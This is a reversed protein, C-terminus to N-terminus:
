VHSGSKSNKSNFHASFFTYRKIDTNIRKIGFVILPVQSFSDFLKFITIAFFM